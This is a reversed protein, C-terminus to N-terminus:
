LMRTKADVHRLSCQHAHLMFLHRHSATLISTNTLLSTNEFRRTLWLSSSDAHSFHAVPVRCMCLGTDFTVASIKIEVASWPYGCSHCAFNVCRFGKKLYGLNIYCSTIIESAKFLNSCNWTKKTNCKWYIATGCMVWNLGILRNVRPIRMEGHM